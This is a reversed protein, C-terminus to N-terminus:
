LHSPLPQDLVVRAIEAINIMEPTDKWGVFHYNLWVAVEDLFFTSDPYKERRPNSLTLSFMGSYPLEFTSCFHSSRSLQPILQGFNVETYELEKLYELYSKTELFEVEWAAMIAMNHNGSKLLQDAIHNYNIPRVLSVQTYVASLDPLDQLCPPCKEKAM